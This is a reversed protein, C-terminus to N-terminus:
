ERRYPVSTEPSSIFKFGKLENKKFRLLAELFYYDAYVLPVDVENNGPMNGVSHLLLFDNNTGPKARYTASSLSQLISTAALSYKKCESKKLYGSLEFLASSVIAAASADRPQEKFRKAEYNWDPVFGKQGANFDWYPIYDKPLNPHDLYFDAMKRAVELYRPDRTERYMVTFGYIGWAQGRAWTSGDAFGQATQQHLVNGTKKDYNVVHYSSFDPRIHNKMTKEAHSIAVDRFSRDKTVKSAFFLLELNMMNDIIVPYEWDNKKGISKRANWSQIVGVAPDYRKLASRASQILIDKYAPNKTLRYGNGYSCYMMFGIDHHSTLFQNDKLAATWKEAAVRWKEAKTQEYMYWLNGAWFGSTWDDLPVCKFRGDAFSTRPFCTLDRAKHLMQTYHEGATRFNDAVLQNKENPLMSLFLLLSLLAVISLVFDTSIKAIKIRKM